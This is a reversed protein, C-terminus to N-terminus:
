FPGMKDSNERKMGASYEKGTDVEETTCEGFGCGKRYIPMSPGKTTGDDDVM